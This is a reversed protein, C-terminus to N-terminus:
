NNLIDGLSVTLDEKDDWVPANNEGKKALWNLSINNEGAPPPTDYTVILNNSDAGVHSLSSAEDTIPQVFWSDPKESFGHEINFVRQSGDGSFVAQEFKGAFSVTVDSPNESSIEIANGPFINSSDLSAQGANVDVAGEGASSVTIGERFNITQAEPDVTIGTEKISIGVNVGLLEGEVAIDKEFTATEEFTSEGTVTDGEVNFFLSNAKDFIEERVEDIYNVMAQESSAQDDQLTRVKAFELSDVPSVFEEFVWVEELLVTFAKVNGNNSSAFITDGSDNVSIEKTASNFAETTELQSLQSDFKTIKGKGGETGHAVFVNGDKGITVDEGEKQPGNSSIEVFKNETGDSASLKRLKNDNSTAYVFSGNAKVSTFGTGAPTIVSEAYDLTVSDGDDVLKVIENSESSEDSPSAGALYINEGVVSMPSAEVSPSVYNSPSTTWIQNFELDYKQISNDDLLIYISQENSSSSIEVPKPDTELGEVGLILEGIEEGNRFDLKKVSFKTGLNRTGVFVFQKAVAIGAIDTDGEQDEIGLGNEYVQNGISNIRKFVGSGSESEAKSGALIASVSTAVENVLDTDVKVEGTPQDVEIGPGSVISTPIEKFNVSDVHGFQDFVIKNLFDADTENNSAEGTNSHSVTLDDSVDIANGGSITINNIATRIANESVIANPSANESDRITRVFSEVSNGSQQFNLGDELTLRGTMVDGDTNVFKTTDIEDSQSISVIIGNESTEFNESVSVPAGEFNIRDVNSLVQGSNNFVDVRQNAIASETLLANESEGDLVTKINSVPTGDELIISGSSLQQEDESYTLGSDGIISGDDSSVFTVQESEAGNPFLKGSFGSGSSIKQASLKGEVFTDDGIIWRQDQVNYLFDSTQSEGEESVVRIGGEIQEGTDFTLINGEFGLDGSIVVNSDFTLTNTANDFSFVDGLTNLDVINERNGQTALVSSIDTAIGGPLFTIYINELEEGSLSNDFSYDGPHVTIHAEPQNRQSVFESDDVSKAKQIVNRATPIASSIETTTEIRKRKDSGELRPNIIGQWAITVPAVVSM